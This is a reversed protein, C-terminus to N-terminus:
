EEDGNIQGVKDVFILWYADVYRQEKRSTGVGDDAPNQEAEEHYPPGSKHALTLKTHKDEERKWFKCETKRGEKLGIKCEIKTGCAEYIWTGKSSQKKTEWAYTKKVM